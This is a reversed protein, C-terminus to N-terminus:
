YLLYIVQVATIDTATANNFKLEAEISKPPNIDIKSRIISPPGAEGFQFTLSYIDYNLDTAELYIM